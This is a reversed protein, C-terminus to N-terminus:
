GTPSPSRLARGHLHPSNHQSPDIGGNHRRRRNFQEFAHVICGTFSLTTSVGSSRRFAILFILLIVFTVLKFAINFDYLNM